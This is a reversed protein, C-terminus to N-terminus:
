LCDDRLQLYWQEEFFDKRWKAGREGAKKCACRRLAVIMIAIPVGYRSQSLVLKSPSKM